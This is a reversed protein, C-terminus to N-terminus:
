LRARRVPDLSTFQAIALPKFAGAAFAFAAIEVTGAEPLALILWVFGDEGAGERDRESPEPRGDPHSHYCGLISRGEQRAARLVRIQEAPDLEFRDPAGSLNPIAHLATVSLFDGAVSGEILGCCERPWAARAEAEMRAQLVPPLIVTKV